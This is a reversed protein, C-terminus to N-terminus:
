RLIILGFLRTGCIVSDICFLVMGDSRRCASVAYCWAMLVAVHRYLMVGHWWLCHCALVAYCWAMLVTVHRYLMAGHWWSLSMGICCLVMGDSRHCASVAYCWAMLVTVHRYLMAGHWWFPSMRTLEPIYKNVWDTWNIIAINMVRHHVCGMQTLSFTAIKILCKVSEFHGNGCYQNYQVNFVIFGAVVHINVLKINLQIM